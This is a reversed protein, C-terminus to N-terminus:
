SGSSIFEVLKAIARGRHSMRNKEIISMQSFRRDEGVPIFVPDYGFGDSGAPEKAITGEVSGEFYHVSGNECLAIVTRFRAKRDEEGKLEALLKAINQESRADPGAFRASYVGPRGGLSYVELGTDDSFCNMGYKEFIYQAKQLANKDLTNGTEPLEEDCGIDSLSLLEIGQPMLSRVEKLKDANQTAFVLVRNPRNLMPAFM